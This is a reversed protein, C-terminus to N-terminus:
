GQGLASKVEDKLFNVAEEPSFTRTEGSRREKVEVQGEKKFRKGVVLKYPIGILDADKFKVGPREPREDWLVELGEAELARYLNESVQMLDEDTGLTLLIVQFPALSLPWIIGHEDHNQEIAAAVTRSVGIGYCGMVMPRERGKEDLFTAGMAESYKTGLKFVHGVEIGRTLELPTGCRPCLDGETVNRLDYFAEIEFDRPHNVNVYHADAENAGTVFNKLGRVAQDAIVRVGSLGVPGAFGVPAQTLREVTEADAMEVQEAGLARRLKVENLEHDGRILIAVPRGDVLYILTKVLKRAPVGLFAAVDEVSKVGPTAKRELPKEAEDEEAERSVAEAMELNAAYGCKPCSAIVDEGTEALVMFEHSESGGIAGTDALVARFRLGCRNFIREYTEYMLRYSKEAAQDDVDFSYADKMIFERGRMLGFRPRIEDRFKTAIQYLILPLDRYSRVERRVLDTIVEEHTPGLCFDHDKRDKFRLLEKGFHDWRGTERWLEAPQVLPLLVELAGARDMEERVIKEVKRLARLGLPLFSYIGSALRRIMGARLMLKHSVVEAEAPDERLTPLFYRSLRM